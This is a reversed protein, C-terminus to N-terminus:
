SAGELARQSKSFFPMSAFNFLINKFDNGYLFLQEPMLSEFMYFTNGSFMCAIILYELLNRLMVNMYGPSSHLMKGLYNRGHNLKYSPFYSAGTVQASGLDQHYDWM